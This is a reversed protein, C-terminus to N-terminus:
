ADITIEKNATVEATTNEASVKGAGHNVSTLLSGVTTEVGSENWYTTEKPDGSGVVTEECVVEFKSAKTNAPKILCLVQGSVEILIISCSFHVTNVLFLLGAGLSPSQTDVVLHAEGLVLIVGTAEGLGTCKAGTSPEKCEKFDIHFPGLKAGAALSSETTGSACAVQTGGLASLTGPKNAGTFKVEETTPLVQAPEVASATASILASLSLVAM